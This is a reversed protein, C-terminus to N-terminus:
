NIEFPFCSFAGFGQALVSRQGFSSRGNTEARQELQVRVQFVEGAIFVFPLNWGPDSVSADGSGEDPLLNESNACKYTCDAPMLKMFLAVELVRFLAVAFSVSVVFRKRQGKERQSFLPRTARFNWASVVRRRRACLWWVFFSTARICSERFLSVSLSLPLSFLFINECLNLSVPTLKSVPPWEFLQSNRISLFSPASSPLRVSSVYENSSIIFHIVQIIYCIIIYYYQSYNIIFLHHFWSSM